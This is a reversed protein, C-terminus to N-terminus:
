AVINSLAMAFPMDGEIKLKGSMFANVGALEGKAIAAYDELSAKFTTGPSEAGNFSVKVSVSTGDPRSLDLTLAGSLTKIQDLRSRDAMQGMDTFMDVAGELKGTVAARWVDESLEVRVVPDKAPGAVVELERADKIVLGYTQKEGGVIDFQISFETGEMGLVTTSSMQEEFIKPVIEEFYERATIDEKVEM